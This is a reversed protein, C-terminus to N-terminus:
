VESGRTGRDRSYIAALTAQGAAGALIRTRHDVPTPKGESPSRSKKQEGSAANAIEGQAM